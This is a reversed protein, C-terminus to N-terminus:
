PRSLPEVGRPAAVFSAGFLRPDRIVGEVAKTKSDATFEVVFQKLILQAAEPDRSEALSYLEARAAKVEEIDVNEPKTVANLAELEKLAKTAESIRNSLDDTVGSSAALDYYSNLRAKLGAMKETREQLTRQFVEWESQISENVRDIVAQLIM